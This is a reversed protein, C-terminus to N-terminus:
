TACPDSADHPPGRLVLTLRGRDRRVLAEAAYWVHPPRARHVHEGCCPCIPEPPAWFKESTTVWRKGYHAAIVQAMLEDTWGEGGIEAGKSAYKTLYNAASKVPDRDSRKSGALDIQMGAGKESRPCGTQWVRHMTGYPWWEPGGIVIVHAHEHGLGDRGPTTEWVLMFPLARRFRKHMWKRLHEWGAVLEARDQAVSGSHAITLTLMRVRVRWRYGPRQSEEIHRPLADLARRRISRAWRKRCSACAARQRCTADVPRAGGGECACRIWRVSKTCAALRPSLDGTLSAVRSAAYREKREAALLEARVEDLEARVLQGGRVTGPGRLQLALELAEARYEAVTRRRDALRSEWRKRESALLARRHSEITPSLLQFSALDLPAPGPGLVRPGAAQRDDPGRAVPQPYSAAKAPEDAGPGEPGMRRRGGKPPAGPPVGEPAGGARRWAALAAREDREAEADEAARARALALEADNM